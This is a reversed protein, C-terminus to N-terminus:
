DSIRRYLKSKSQPFMNVKLTFMDRLVATSMTDFEM